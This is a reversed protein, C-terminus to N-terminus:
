TNGESRLEPDGAKAGVPLHDQLAESSSIVLRWRLSGASTRPVGHM